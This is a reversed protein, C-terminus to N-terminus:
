RTFPVASADTLRHGMDTIVGEIDIRRLGLDQLTRDDLSALIVKTVAAIRWAIRAKWARVILQLPKAEL